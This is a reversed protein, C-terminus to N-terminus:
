VALPHASEAGPGISRGAADLLATLLFDPGRLRRGVGRPAHASWEERGNMITTTKERIAPLIL